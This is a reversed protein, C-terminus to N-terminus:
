NNSNSKRKDSALKSNILKSFIFIVMFPIIMILHHSFGQGTALISFLIGSTFLILYKNDKKLLSKKFILSIFLFILILPISICLGFFIKLLLSIFVILLIISNDVKTIM